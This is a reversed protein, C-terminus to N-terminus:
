VTEVEIREVVRIPIKHLRGVGIYQYQTDRVYYTPPLLLAPRITVVLGTIFVVCTRGPLTNSTLSAQTNRNM